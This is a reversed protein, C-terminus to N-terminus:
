PNTSAESYHELIEEISSQGFAAADTDQKPNPNPNPDPDPNPNTARSAATLCGATGRYALVIPAHHTRALSTRMDTRKLYTTRLLGARTDQAYPM